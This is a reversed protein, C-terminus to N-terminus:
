ISRVTSYAVLINVLHSVFRVSEREEENWHYNTDFAGMLITADPNVSEFISNLNETDYPFEYKEFVREYKNHKYKDGTLIYVRHGEKRLKLIMSDMLSCSGGVLLINM